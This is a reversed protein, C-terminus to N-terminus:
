YGSFGIGGGPFNYIGGDMSWINYRDEKENGEKQKKMRWERGGEIHEAWLGQKNTNAERKKYMFQFGVVM